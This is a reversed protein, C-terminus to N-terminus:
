GGIELLIEAIKLAQKNPIFGGKLYELQNNEGWPQLIIVGPAGNEYAHKALEHLKKLRGKQYPTLNIKLKSPNRM